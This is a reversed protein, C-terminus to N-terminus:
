FCLYDNSLSSCNLVYNLVFNHPNIGLGLNQPNVTVALCIFWNSKKKKHKHSDDGDRDERKSGKRARKPAQSWILVFGYAVIEVICM